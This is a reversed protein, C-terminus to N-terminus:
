LQYGYLCSGPTRWLQHSGAVLTIIQNREALSTM